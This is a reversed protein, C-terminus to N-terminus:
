TVCQVKQAVPSNPLLPSPYLPLIVSKLFHPSTYCRLIPIESLFGGIFENKRIYIFWVNTAYIFFTLLMKDMNNNDENRM